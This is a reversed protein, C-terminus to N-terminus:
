TSAVRCRIGRSELWTTVRKCNLSSFTELDRLLRADFYGTVTAGADIRGLLHYTNTCSPPLGPLSRPFQEGPTVLLVSGLRYAPKGTWVHVSPRGPRAIAICSPYQSIELPFDSLLEVGDATVLYDNELRIGARLEPSYLGPEVTFVEGEQSVDDWNPNLHPVRPSFSRLWPRPPPQLQVPMCADLRSKVEHFIDRCRVGPRVAGEIYPFIAAIQEWAAQQLDTPRGNM